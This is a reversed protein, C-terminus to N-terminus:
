RGPDFSGHYDADEIGLAAATPWLAEFTDLMVALENAERTGISAEYAGPHPGHMTGMPHHSVSGRAIGRRSTFSGESYFLFEDCHVSQHPYPCPIAEPHYDVLRPVFSCVLGGRMAFTGHITPPLHVTSTKPQFAEIPFAWPWVTGDWGVVDLPSHPLEYATFRGNRKAVVTRLGEDVPGGFGPRRFDRHTFPADMRLQGVENRFQRPVHLDGLAEFVLWHQEVGDDPLFRHTVGRPVFVYDKEEFRLDGMLTRVIGSGRHVYFLDDGDGNEFYVPDAASPRLVGIVVDKNFLLPIRADLPSADSAPLRSTPYHRRLLPADPYGDPVEPRAWGHESVGWSTHVHPANERYLITFPGDFGARTLCHERRVSGDPGRLVTHPKPPIEGASMRDIM